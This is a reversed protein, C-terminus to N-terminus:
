NLTRRDIPETDLLEDITEHGLGELARMLAAYEEPDTKQLEVMDIEQANDFVTGDEVMKTLADLLEQLDDAPIDQQMQELVTPPIIVRQKQETM